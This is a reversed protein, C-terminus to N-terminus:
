KWKNPFVITNMMAQFVPKWSAARDSLGNAESEVAGVNFQVQVMTNGQFFILSNVHTKMKVGARENTATYELIGAPEGEIKTSVGSVFTAEDPIMTKMESPTLLEEADKRTMALNAPLAKTIIIVVVMGKGESYEIKKVVNPREGEREEWNKPYKMTFATGKSKAHGTSNFLATNGDLIARLAESPQAECLNLWVVAAVLALIRSLVMNAM